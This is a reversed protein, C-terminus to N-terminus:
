VDDLYMDDWDEEVTSKRRTETNSGQAAGAAPPPQAGEPNENQTSPKGAGGDGKSTSTSEENERVMDWLDEDELDGMDHDPFDSNTNSPEEFNPIPEDFAKWLEDDDVDMSDNASTSPPPAVSSTSGSQLNQLEEFAADFAEDDSPGSPEPSSPPRTNPAPSSSAYEARESENGAGADTAAGEEEEGEEEDDDNQTPKKGHYEDRFSSLAVRMRKSHCLKEIREVTDNFQSKPYMRHTWFQYVQLLRNLDTARFNKTDQMLQKFGTPGLLRNEDLRMPKKKEKKKDDKDKPGTKEAGGGGAGVGDDLDRPPSSSPLIPQRTTKTRRFSSENQKHKRAADAEARRQIDEERRHSLDGMNNFVEDLDVDEPPPVNPMSEEEEQASPTNFFTEDDEDPLFLLDPTAM